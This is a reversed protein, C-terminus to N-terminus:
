CRQLSGQEASQTPHEGLEPHTILNSDDNFTRVQIAGIYNGIHPEGSSQIGSFVVGNKLAHNSAARTAVRGLGCTRLMNVLYREM